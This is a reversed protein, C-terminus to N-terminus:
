TPDIWVRNLFLGNLPDFDKDTTLLTAGTVSATAAIWLDNKGLTYGNSKTYADITAYDSLIAPDHIDLRAFYSLLTSMQQVKYTGWSLQIALSGIEGETVISYVCRPMANMPDYLSVVKNLWTPSSRIAHVFINTDLLYLPL